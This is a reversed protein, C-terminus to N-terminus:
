VNIKSVINIKLIEWLRLPLFLQFKLFEKWFRKKRKRDLYTDDFSAKGWSPHLHEIILDELYIRSNSYRAISTLWTDCFDAYFYPPLLYGLQKAFERSVFGHTAIKNSKQGLDDGHILFYESDLKDITELIKTNWLNTRFVIDDAAYMLISGRSNQYCINTMKSVSMKPGVFIKTNSQKFNKMTQDDADTYVIFEISEPSSSNQLASEIMRMLQM